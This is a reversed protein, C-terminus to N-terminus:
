IGNWSLMKRRSSDFASHALAARKAFRTRVGRLTRKSIYAYTYHVDDPSHVDCSPTLVSVHLRDRPSFLSAIATVTRRALRTSSFGHESLCLSISAPLRLCVCCKKKFRSVSPTESPVSRALRADARSSLSFVRFLSPFRFERCSGDRTATRQWTYHHFGTIQM